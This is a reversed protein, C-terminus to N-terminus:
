FTAEVSLDARHLAPRGPYTRGRYLLRGILAGSLDLSGELRWEATTGLARGDAVALPLATVHATLHNVIPEIVMRSKKGLRTVARLGARPWDALLGGGNQWYRRGFLTLVIETSPLVRWAPAVSGHAFIFDHPFRLREREVGGGTRLELHWLESL